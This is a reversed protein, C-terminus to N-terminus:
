ANKDKKKLSYKAPKDPVPLHVMEERYEGPMLTGLIWPGIQVRVLRLTPLGVAATMRRVQRNRGETIIIELWSEMRKARKRIPPVRPWLSPASIVQVKAPKTVGDKLNVGKRLAALQEATPMGEVQVLYVKALKYKPNAINAQLKGDDTLLLLGESDRDLRGAPYVNSIPCLEALGPHGDKATFQSLFGFPKNLLVVKSMCLHEEIAAQQCKAESNCVEM